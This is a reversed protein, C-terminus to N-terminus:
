NKRPLSKPGSRSEPGVSAAALSTQAPAHRYIFLHSDYLVDRVHKPIEDMPQTAREKATEYDLLKEFGMVTRVTPVNYGGHQPDDAHILFCKNTSTRM